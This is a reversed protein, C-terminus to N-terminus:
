KSSAPTCVSADECQTNWSKRTTSDRYVSSQVVVVGALVSGYCLYQSQFCYRGAKNDAEMVRRMVNGAEYM